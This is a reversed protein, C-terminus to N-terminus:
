VAHNGRALAGRLSAILARSRVPKTLFADVKGKLEELMEYGSVVIVPVGRANLADVLGVALRGHLNIDIVAVDPTSEALLAEAADERAAPGLVIMGANELLCKVAFAIHWSDEVVLARKGELSVHSDPVRAGATLPRPRPTEPLRWSAPACPETSHPDSSSSTSM